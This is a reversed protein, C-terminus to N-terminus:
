AVMRRAHLASHLRAFAARWHHRDRSKAPRTPDPRMTCGYSMLNALPRSPLPGADHLRIVHLRIVIRRIDGPECPRGVAATRTVARAGDLRAQHCGMYWFWAEVASSFPVAAPVEHCRCRDARLASSSPPMAPRGDAFPQLM